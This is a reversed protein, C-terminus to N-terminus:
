PQKNQIEGWPQAIGDQKAFQKLTQQQLVEHGGSALSCAWNPTAQQDELVWQPPAVVSFAKGFRTNIEHVDKAHAVVVYKRKKHRLIFTGGEFSANKRCCYRPLDLYTLQDADIDQPQQPPSVLPLPHRRLYLRATLGLLKRKLWGPKQGANKRMFTHLKSQWTTPEANSTM